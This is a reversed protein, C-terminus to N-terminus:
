YNRLVDISYQAVFLVAISPKSRPLPRVKGPREFIVMTADLLITQNFACLHARSPRPAIVDAQAQPGKQSQLTMTIVVAQRPKFGLRRDDSIRHAMIKSM